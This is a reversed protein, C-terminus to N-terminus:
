KHLKRKEKQVVLVIIQWFYFSWNFFFVILSFCSCLWKPLVIMFFVSSLLFGHNYNFEFFWIVAIIWSCFIMPGNVRMTAEPLFFFFLCVSPWMPALCKLKGPFSPLDLSNRERKPFFPQFQFKREEKFFFFFHFCTEAFLWFATCKPPSVCIIWKYLYISYIVLACDSSNQKM